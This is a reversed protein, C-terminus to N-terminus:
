IIHDHCNTTQCCFVNEHVNANSSKM